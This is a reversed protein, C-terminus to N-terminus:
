GGLTAVVTRRWSPHNLVGNGTAGARFSWACPYSDFGQAPNAARLNFIPLLALGVAAWLLVVRAFSRSAAM